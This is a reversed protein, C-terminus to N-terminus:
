NSMPLKKAKGSPKPDVVKPEGIKQAKQDKSLSTGKPPAKKPDGQPPQEIYIDAGPIPDGPKAQSQNCCFFLVMISLFLLQFTRM